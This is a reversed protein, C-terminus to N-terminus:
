GYTCSSAMRESNKYFQMVPAPDRYAYWVFASGNVWECAIPIGGSYNECAQRINEAKVPDPFGSTSGQGFSNTATGVSSAVGNAAQGLVM